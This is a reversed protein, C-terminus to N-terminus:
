RYVLLLVGSNVHVIKRHGMTKIVSPISLNTMGIFKHLRDIVLSYM